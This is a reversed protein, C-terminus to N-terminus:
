STKDGIIFDTAKKTQYMPEGELSRNWETKEATAYGGLQSILEALRRAERESNTSPRVWYLVGRGGDVDTGYVCWQPEEAISCAVSSRLNKYESRIDEQTRSDGKESKGGKRADVLSVVNDSKEVMKFTEEDILPGNIPIDESNLEPHIREIKGM